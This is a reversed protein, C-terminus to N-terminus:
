LRVSIEGNRKYKGLLEYAVFENVITKTGIIKGVADCDKWDVGIAWSVPIFLKGLIFLIGVDAFGILSTAWLTISDVFSTFAIMAVVNAIINLVIKVSQAVGNAAAELLSSDTRFRLFNIADHM